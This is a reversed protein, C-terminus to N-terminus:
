NMKKRSGVWIRQGVAFRTPAPYNPFFFFSLQFLCFVLMIGWPWWIEAYSERKLRTRLSSCCYALSHFTFACGEQFLFFLRMKEKRRWSRTINLQLNHILSLMTWNTDMQKKVIISIINNCRETLICAIIPWNLSVYKVLLGTLKVLEKQNWSSFMSDQRSKAIKTALWMKEHKANSTDIM